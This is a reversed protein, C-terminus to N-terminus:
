RGNIRLTSGSSIGLQSGSSIGLTSGSSIGLQSGNSIASGGFGEGVATALVVGESTPQVGTVSVVGNGLVLDGNSLLNTYNVVLRGIQLTGLVPDVASLYGSVYLPTAGPVNQETSQLIATGVAYGDGLVYGFVYILTGPSLSQDDLDSFSITQGLVELMSLDDYITDIPGFVLLTHSDPDVSAGTDSSVSLTSSIGLKSGSSIGFMSGSSIGLRSGSSIGLMSGSSIGLRSGGSIGLTSGSSIGLEGVGCVALLSHSCVQANAAMCLSGLLVFTFQQIKRKIM